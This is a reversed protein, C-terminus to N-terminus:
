LPPGPPIYADYIGDKINGEFTNSDLNPSAPDQGFVNMYIGYDNEKFLSNIIDPSGGQMYVGSVDPSGNYSQNNLFQNAEIWSNSNVLLIANTKNYQLISNKVTAMTQDIKIGAGVFGGLEGGAYRM